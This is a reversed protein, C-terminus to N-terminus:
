QIEVHRYRITLGQLNETVYKEGIYSWALVLKRIDEKNLRSEFLNIMSSVLSVSFSASSGLGAGLPINTFDSVFVYKRNTEHNNDKKNKSLFPNSIHFINYLYGEM